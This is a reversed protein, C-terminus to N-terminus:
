RRRDIPLALRLAGWGPLKLGDLATPNSQLGPLAGWDQQGLASKLEPRMALMVPSTVLSRSVSVAQPGAAAELRASSM